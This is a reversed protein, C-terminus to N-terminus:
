HFIWIDICMILFMVGLYPFASLKYIRWANKFNSSIALRSSSYVMAIGLLNAFVLYLWAFSNVFYLILSSAYLLLSFILLVKVADKVEWSMPFYKQGASLYDDRYAVMVSWVHLPVWLAILVCLLLIEWSFTPSIAFWGILVPACSAIMGQPFVCTARKRGVVAAITGILDSLFCLPHLYWSLALGIITLGITLPLAKEPPYVRRSPLTRHRTRQM